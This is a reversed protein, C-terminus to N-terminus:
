IRRWLIWVSFGYLAFAGITGMLVNLLLIISDMMEIGTQPFVVSTPTEITRALTVSSVQGGIVLESSKSLQTTPVDLLEASFLSVTTPIRDGTRLANDVRVDYSSNWEEGPSLESIMWQIGSSTANGGGADTVQLRGTDFRSDVLIEHLTGRTNNKVTIAFRVTQNARPSAPNSRLSIQLNGRIQEPTLAVEPLSTSARSVPLVATRAIVATAQQGPIAFRDADEGTFCSVERGGIGMKEVTSRHRSVSTTSLRQPFFSGPDLVMFDSLRVASQMLSSDVPRDLYLTYTLDVTSRAPIRDIVFQHNLADYRGGVVNGISALKPGERISRYAHQLEIFGVDFASDNKAQVLFDISDGDVDALQMESIAYVFEGEENMVSQRIFVPIVTAGPRRGPGGAFTRISEECLSVAFTDSPLIFFSGSLLFVGGFFM